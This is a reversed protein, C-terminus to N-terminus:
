AREKEDKWEKLFSALRRLARARHSIKNKEDASLEALTRGNVEFISDFAFGHTGREQQAIVGDVRGRFAVPPHDPASFAVCSEFHADRESIGDMLKLIGANGLTSFVYASYPGPFGNLAHVFLGADEVFVARNLRTCGERAGHLAIEELSASQIETYGGDDHEFEIGLAGLVKKAEELKHANGTIFTLRM